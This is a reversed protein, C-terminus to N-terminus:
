AAERVLDTSRRQPKCRDAIVNQADRIQADIADQLDAMACVIGHDVEEPTLLFEPWISKTM